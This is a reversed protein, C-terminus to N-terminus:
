NHIKGKKKPKGPNLHPIGEMMSDFSDRVSRAGDKRGQEYVAELVQSLRVGSYLDMDATVEHLAQAVRVGAYIPVTRKALVINTRVCRPKKTKKGM